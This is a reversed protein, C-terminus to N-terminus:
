AINWLERMKNGFTFGAYTKAYTGALAPSREYSVCVAANMPTHGTEVDRKFEQDLPM